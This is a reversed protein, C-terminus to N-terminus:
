GKIAEIKAKTAKFEDTMGLKGYVQKLSELIVADNPESAAASELFPLAKQFFEKSEAVYKDYNPDGFPLKNAENNKDAGKNFFLGGMSFKANVHNPDLELTRAYAKEAEETKGMGEYINGSTYILAINDPALAIAATLAKEAEEKRDSDIYFNIQQIIVDVNDSYKAVAEDLAKEAEADKGQAKLSKALYGAADAPQYGIELCKKFGEAAVEYEEVNYAAFSGYLYYTSDVIGMVDGFKAAGLLAGMAEKYKQEGYTAIGANALTVRYINAYQDVDDTYRGKTDVEKSKKLDELGQECIKAAEEETYTIKDSMASFMGLEFNIKGQYLLQKPTDKTDAHAASLDIYEKAELLSTAAKEANKAKNDEYENFALVASTLNKKQAFTGFTVFCIATALLIRKMKM